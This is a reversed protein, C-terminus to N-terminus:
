DAHSALVPARSVNRGKTSYCIWSRSKFMRLVKAKGIMPPSRCVRQVEHHRGPQAGTRWGDVRCTLVHANGCM